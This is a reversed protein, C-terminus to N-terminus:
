IQPRRIFHQPFKGIQALFLGILYNHSVGVANGVPHLFDFRNGIASKCRGDFPCFFVQLVDCPALRPFNVAIRHRIQYGFPQVPFQSGDDLM